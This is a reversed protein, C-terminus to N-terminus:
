FWYKITRKCIDTKKLKYKKEEPLFFSRDLKNLTPLLNANTLVGNDYLTKILSFHSDAKFSQYGMSLTVLFDNSLDSAIKSFFRKVSTRIM